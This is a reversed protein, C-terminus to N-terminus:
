NLSWPARYARLGLWLLGLGLECRKHKTVHRINGFSRRVSEVRLERNALASFALAACGSASSICKPETIARVKFAVADM